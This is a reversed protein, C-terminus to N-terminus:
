RLRGGGARLDFDLVQKWMPALYVLAATARHVGADSLSLLRAPRQCGRLCHRVPERAQFDIPGEKIQVIVNALLSAMWRIFSTM